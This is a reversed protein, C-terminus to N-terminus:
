TTCQQDKMTITVRGTPEITTELGQTVFPIHLAML